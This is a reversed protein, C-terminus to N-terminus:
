CARVQPPPTTAPMGTNSRRKLEDISRKWFGPASLIYTSRMATNGTFPRRLSSSTSPPLPPRCRLEQLDVCSLCQSHARRTPSATCSASEVPTLFKEDARGGAASSDERAM